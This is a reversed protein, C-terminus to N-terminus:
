ARTDIRSVALVVDEFRTLQARARPLIFMRQL